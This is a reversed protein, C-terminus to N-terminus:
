PARRTKRDYRLFVFNFFRIEIKPKDTKSGTKWYQNKTILLM